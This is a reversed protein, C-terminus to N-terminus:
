IPLQGCKPIKLMRLNTAELQIKEKLSKSILSSVQSTDLGNITVTQGDNSLVFQDSTLDEITGNSYHM